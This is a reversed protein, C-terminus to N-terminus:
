VEDVDVEELVLLTFSVIQLRHLQYFHSIAAYKIRVAHAFLKM